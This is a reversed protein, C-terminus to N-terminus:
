DDDVRSFDGELTVPGGDDRDSTSRHPIDREESM